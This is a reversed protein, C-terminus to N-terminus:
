SKVVKGIGLGALGWGISVDLTTVVTYSLPFQWWIFNPIVIVLAGALAAVKVFGVKQIYSLGTTKTLLYTLLFAVLINFLLGFFMMKAKNMKFGKPYVVMFAFPGEQIKRNVEAMAEPTKEMTLPLLYVGNKTVNNKLSEAVPTENPLPSITMWHWPLVMWSFNMWIFAILGGILSGKVLIKM